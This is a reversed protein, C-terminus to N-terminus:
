FVGFRAFGVEGDRIAVLDRVGGAAEKRNNRAHEGKYGTDTEDNATDAHHVDHEHGYCFAGM